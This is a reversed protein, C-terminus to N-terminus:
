EEEMATLSIDVVDVKFSHGEAILSVTNIQIPRYGEQILRSLINGSEYVVLEGLQDAKWHEVLNLPEGCSICYPPANESPTGVAYFGQQWPLKQKQENEYEIQVRLPCESGLSGCVPLSQEWIRFSISLRLDVVDILSQKVVQRIENSANGVGRREFRLVSEGQMDAIITTGAPEGGREIEWPFTLWTTFDGSAFDGNELFNQDISTQEINGSDDIVVGDEASLSTTKGAYAIEAKGKNVAVETKGGYTAITYSGDSQPQITGNPIDIQITLKKEGHQPPLSLKIRGQTLKLHFHSDASSSDFRPYSAESVILQTNGYIRIRGLLQPSLNYKPEYLELLGNDASNNTNIQLPLLKVEKRNESMQLWDKQNLILTGQNAQTVLLLPRTANQIFAQVSLPVTVSLLVCLFFSCLLVIWAIQEQRQNVM